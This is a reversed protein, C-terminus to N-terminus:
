TIINVDFMVFKCLESYAVFDMLILPMPVIKLAFCQRVKPCEVLLPM